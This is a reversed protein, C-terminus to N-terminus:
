ASKVVVRLGDIEIVQVKAGADLWGGDLVVDIYQDGFCAKGAPRLETVTTGVQGLLEAPVALPITGAADSTEEDPPPLLLRNVGPIHPLYRAITFASVLAIVLSGALVAFWSGLEQYEAQSQPWQKVVLLSLGLLMLVIGAVGTIGFGPLVFVEVGLLIVGLLFMLLALANLEGALWSHAWFVLVFCVVAIVGPITLGPSKLELVICTFGLVVLFVTVLENRLVEVLSDLWDARMLIADSKKVGYLNLVGDVEKTQLAARALGTKVAADGNLILLTGPKKLPPQPLAEWDGRVENRPLFAVGAVEDQPKNPDPREQAAVIELDLEFMGRILTPPYFQEEALGILQQKIARVTIEDALAKSNINEYVISRCDGLSAEPGLVIQDCAFALFHAAGDCKEPIYAVTLVNAAKCQDRFSRGLKEAREASKPGGSAGDIQLIICNAKEVEIAKKVKRLVMEVTGGDIEGRVEIVAAKPNTVGLLNGRLVAPPLGLREVLQQASTVTRSILGAQEAERAGFVGPKGAPAFVKPLMRQEDATLALAPPLGLRDVGAPDLKFRKGDAEFQYVILDPALMKMFLAAPRGRRDAVNLYGLFKTKDIPAIRDLAAQTFGLSAEPRGDSGALLYVKNCALAPLVANGNLNKDIYAVTEVRAEIKDLLYNAMDLCPGFTSPEGAQFHFVLVRAGNRIARETDIMFQTFSESTLEGPLTIWEGATRPPNWAPSVAASWLLCIGALPLVWVRSSGKPLRALMQTVCDM